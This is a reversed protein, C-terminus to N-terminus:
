PPVSSTAGILKPLPRDPQCDVGPTVRRGPRPSQPPDTLLQPDIGLRQAVPHGLGLDVFSV